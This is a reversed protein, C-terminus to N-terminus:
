VTGLPGAPGLVWLRVAQRRRPQLRYPAVMRGTCSRFRLPVGPRISVSTVSPWLPTAPIRHALATKEVFLVPILPCRYAFCVFLCAQNSSQVTDRQGKRSPKFQVPEGVYLNQLQSAYNLGEKNLAWQSNLIWTQLTGVQTIHPKQVKHATPM